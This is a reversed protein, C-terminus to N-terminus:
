EQLHHLPPLSDLKIRLNWIYMCFFNQSASQVYKMYFNSACLIFTARLLWKLLGEASCLQMRLCHTENENLGTM